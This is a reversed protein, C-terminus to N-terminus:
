AFTPVVDRQPFGERVAEVAQWNGGDNVFLNEAAM